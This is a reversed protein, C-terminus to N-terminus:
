ARVKDMLSANGAADSIQAREFVTTVFEFAREEMWWVKENFYRIFACHGGTEPMELYLNPNTSVAKIPYCNESLFTDNKAAIILTPIPINALHPRCSSKEWYADVSAFGNAPATFHTDFYIFNGSM